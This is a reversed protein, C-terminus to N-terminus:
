SNSNRKSKLEKGCITEETKKYKCFELYDTIEGTQTFKKWANKMNM